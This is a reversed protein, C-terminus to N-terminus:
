NEFGGKGTEVKELEEDLEEKVGESHDKEVEKSHEEESHENGVVVDESHEKEIEEEEMEEKDSEKLKAALEKKEIKQTIFSTIYIVFLTSIMVTAILIFGDLSLLQPYDIIGAMPPIFFLTMFGILFSSGDRIYEVKIWKLQLCLVLVLLGLVSAPLPLGTIEVIFVGIYYFVYLILIQTIIRVIRMMLCYFTFVFKGIAM